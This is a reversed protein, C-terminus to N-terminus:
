GNVKVESKCMIFAGVMKNLLHKNILKGIFKMM